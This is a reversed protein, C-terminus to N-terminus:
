LRLLLNNEVVLTTDIEIRGYENITSCREVDDVLNIPGSTDDFTM